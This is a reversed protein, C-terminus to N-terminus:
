LAKLAADLSPVDAINLFEVNRDIRKLFGTLTTGPGLEIFRNFGQGLLYRISDEWRVPSVVQEVLRERIEAPGQHPQATVNSIVMVKPTQVAVEAMMAQVKPQAGSMLRSHYAGAVQLAVAKKAGKAKALEVARAIKDDEGSIV